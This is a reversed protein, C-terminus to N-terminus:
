NSVRLDALTLNGIQREVIRSGQYICFGETGATVHPFRRAVAQGFATPDDIRIYSDCEFVSM